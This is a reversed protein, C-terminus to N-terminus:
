HKSRKPPSDSVAGKKQANGDIDFKQEYRDIISKANVLLENRPEWTADYIRSYGQWHVLYQIKGRLWKHALIGAVEFQKDGYDHAPLHVNKAIDLNFDAAPKL